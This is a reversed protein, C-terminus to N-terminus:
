WVMNLHPSNQPRARHMRRCKAPRGGNICAAAGNISAIIGSMDAVSGRIAALRAWQYRCGQCMRSGNVAAFESMARTSVCPPQVNDPPQAVVLVERLPHRLPPPRLPQRAGKCRPVHACTVHARALRPLRLPLAEGEARLAANAIRQGTSAYPSTRGSALQAVHKAIRHGTSVYPITSRM